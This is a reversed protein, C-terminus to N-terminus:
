PIRLTFANMASPFVGSTVAMWKTGAPVRFRRSSQAPIAAQAGISGTTACTGSLFQITVDQPALMTGDWLFIRELGASSAVNVISADAGDARALTPDCTTVFAACSPVAACVGVGGAAWTGQAVVAGAHASPTVTASSLMAALVLRGPTRIIM